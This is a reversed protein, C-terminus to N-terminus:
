VDALMAGLATDSCFKDPTWDDVEIRTWTKDGGYWHLGVSKPKLLDGNPPGHLKLLDYPSVPCIVEQPINYFRTDPFQRKLEKWDWKLMANLAGTGASQPSIHDTGNVAYDFLADWFHVEPVSALIGVNSFSGDASLADDKGDLVRVFRDPADYVLGVDCGSREMEKVLPDLPATFVIDTDFYVGGWEHLIRYRALDSQIAQHDSYKEPVPRQLLGDSDIFEENFDPSHLMVDWGPNHRQFSHISLQRAWPMPWKGQWYFHAIRPISTPAAAEEPQTPLTASGVHQPHAAVWEDWGHPKPFAQGATAFVKRSGENVRGFLDSQGLLCAQLHDEDEISPVV